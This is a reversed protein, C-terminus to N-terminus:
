KKDQFVEPRITERKLTLTQAAGGNRSYTLTVTSGEAGRLRNTITALDLGAVNLGDVSLIVDGKQLGARESPTGPYTRVVVAGQPVPNLAAGIGGFSTAPINASAAVPANPPPPPAKPEHRPASIYGGILLLALCVFIMGMYSKVAKVEPPPPPKIKVDNEDIKPENDQTM